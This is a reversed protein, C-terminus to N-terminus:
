QNLSKVPIAPEDMRLFLHRIRYGDPANLDTISVQLSAVPGFRCATKSIKKSMTQLHQYFISVM